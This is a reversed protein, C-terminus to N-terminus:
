AAVGVLGLNLAHWRPIVLRGCDGPRRITAEDTMAINVHPIWVEKDDVRCLLAPGSKRVAEVGEFTVFDRM